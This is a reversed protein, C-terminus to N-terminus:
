DHFNVFWVKRDGGRELERMVTETTTDNWKGDSWGGDHWGQGCIICLDGIANRAPADGNGYRDLLDRCTTGQMDEVGDWGGIEYHDYFSDRNFTSVADGDEDLTLGRHEAAAKGSMDNGHEKLCARDDARGDALIGGRTQEIYEDVDAYESWDALIGEVGDENEAGIVAGLFHM